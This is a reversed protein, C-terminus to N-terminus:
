KFNMPVDELDIKPRQSSQVCETILDIPKIPVKIVEQFDLWHDRAKEQLEAASKSCVDDAGEPYPGLTFITSGILYLVLYTKM